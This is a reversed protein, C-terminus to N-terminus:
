KRPAKDFALVVTEEGQDPLKPADPLTHTWAYSPDTENNARDLAELAADIKEQKTAM